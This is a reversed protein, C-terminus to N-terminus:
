ASITATIELKKIGTRLKLGGGSIKDRPKGHPLHMYYWNGCVLLSWCVAQGNKGNIM